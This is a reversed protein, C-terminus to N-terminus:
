LIKKYMEINKYKKMKFILIILSCCFAIIELIILTKMPKSLMVSGNRFVVSFTKDLKGELQQVRGWCQFLGLMHYFDVIHSKYYALPFLYFFLPILLLNRKWRAKMKNGLLRNMIEWTLFAVSGSLVMILRISYEM